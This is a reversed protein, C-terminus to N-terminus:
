YDVGYRTRYAEIETQVSLGNEMTLASEKLFHILHKLKVISLVPIGFESEM